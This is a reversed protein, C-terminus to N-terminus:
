IVWIVSAQSQTYMLFQLPSFLLCCSSQYNVIDNNNWLFHTEKPSPTVRALSRYSCILASIQCIFLVTVFMGRGAILHLLCSESTLSQLQM